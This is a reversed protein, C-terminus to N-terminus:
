NGKQQRQNFGIELRSLQQQSGFDSLFKLGM